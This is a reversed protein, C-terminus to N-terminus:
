VCQVPLELPVYNRHCLHIYASTLACFAPRSVDAHEDCACDLGECKMMFQVPDVVRFCPSLPSNTSSFLSTCSLSDATGNQCIEAKGSVCESDVQWSHTFQLVSHTHSGDPLLLENAAENDNTGLLGASVGHLWGDLIVSCVELHTDCSVRLGRENSVEILNVDKRIAVERKTYPIQAVHCNVEVEGNPHIAIKTNQMQVVLSRHKFRDSKLAISFTHQFVDGALIFDCSAPLKFLHGDFSVLYVDAVLFAQYNVPSDMIKRKLRYLESTPSLSNLALLPKLVFEELLVETVGAEKVKLWPGVPLPVRFIVEGESKSFQYMLALQRRIGVLMAALRAEMWQFTQQSVMDMAFIAVHLTTLSPARLHPDHLIAPLLETLERTWLQVGQQWATDLRVGTVDHYAGALTALPKRLEQQVQQSILNLVHLTHPLSHTLTHRLPGTTWAKWLAGARQLLLTEARQTLSLPGESLELLFMSDGAQRRFTLLLHQLRQVRDLLKSRIRYGLQQLRAETAWLCESCGKAQFLLSQNAAGVSILTLTENEIGQGGRQAELTFWRHGELCFAARIDDSTEMNYGAAVRLCHKGLAGQLWLMESRDLKAHVQIAVNRGSSLSSCALEVSWNGVQWETILSYNSRQSSSINRLSLTFTNHQPHGSVSVRTHTHFLEKGSNVRHSGSWILAPQPPCLGIQVHHELRDRLNTHIQTLLTYSPCPSPSVNQAGLEMLLTHMGKVGGQYKMSQTIRKDKWKLETNQSYAKGEQAVAVCGEMEVLPLLSQIQGPSLFICAQGRSSDDHWHESVTVSVNVPKGHEWSFRAQKNHNQGRDPGHSLAHIHFHTLTSVFLQKQELSDTQRSVLTWSGQVRVQDHRGFLIWDVSLDALKRQTDNEVRLDLGWGQAKGTLEPYSQLHPVDDSSDTQTLDQNEWQARHTLTHSGRKGDYRTRVTLNRPLLHLQPISHNSVLVQKFGSNTSSIEAEFALGSMGVLLEATGKVSSHAHSLQSKSHFEFPLYPHLDSINHSINVLLGTSSTNHHGQLDFSFASSQSNYFSARIGVKLSDEQDQGSCAGLLHGTDIGETCNVQSQGTTQTTHPSSQELTATLGSAGAHLELQACVSSDSWNVYVGASRNLPLGASRLWPISHSLQAHLSRCGCHTVNSSINVCLSEEMAVLCLLASLDEGSKREHQRTVELGYVADDVVVTLEGETLGKSQTLVGVLSASNPLAALDQISNFIDASLSLQSEQDHPLTGSLHASFTEEKKKVTCQLFLSESSTNAALHIQGDSTVGPFLTQHFGAHVCVTNIGKAMKNNLNFHLTVNKENAKLNVSSGINGLPSVIVAANAHYNKDDIAVKSESHYEFESNNRHSRLVEIDLSVSTPFDTQFLQSLNAKMTIGHQSTTLDHLQVQGFAALIEDKGVWLRGQIECATQHNQVTVCIKSDQPIRETSFSQVISSCVYPQQPQFGLTLIHIGKKNGHVLVKSELTYVKQHLDSTFTEQLILSQPLFKFPQRFNLKWRKQYVKREKRIEEIAGEMQLEAFPNKLDSLTMTMMLLRKKLKKDLTSLVASINLDQKGYGASIELTKVQKGNIIYIQGHLAPTWATSISYSAKVGRKGLMNWGGVKIYSVTPTFLHLQGQREKGRDKYFGELTVSRINVLKRTTIESSFQTIGRQPQTLKQVIYVYLWPTDMNFSGEWKQLSTKTSVDKWHVGAVLPMQNNYNIKLHTSSESRQKKFYSHLLQTRYSLGRDLLRLSLEVSYSTLGPGSQNRLSQNFLIRHKNSSQNWQKGFSVDLSSQVNFPSREHKLEIKHNINIFHSCHLKHAATIRYMQVPDSESHLNQTMHCEQMNQSDESLSADKNFVNKLLAQIIFRRSRAHTTNVSLSFPHGDAVVKADLHFHARTESPLNVTELLGKIFYHHINDILLEIRGSHQNNLEEIQAQILINKLPHTIKLILRKPSLNVDLSMDRPITSQPTGLFLLLTAELPTWSNRQPVFTYAAELLYQNLGKDLKQLRLTFLVPGLPPFSKGMLTLPYTVDSCLQWGVMKSWTKPTCTSKEKLNRTAILEEKSDGSVHFMRSNFTLVDMVDEPTNLVVKLSQGHHLFVAGDLSTFTKLQSVWELGVRGFAGDVGARVSIAVLANPKVYGALSFHSWNKYNAIGKLRLSFLASMNISLRMPLGSLSPLVLEEALVIPRQSIKIEQGKLLKVVVGATSLSLKRQYAHLDDCSMFALDNGFMKVNMWCRLSSDRKRQETFKTKISSLGTSQCGDSGGQKEDRNRGKQENRMSDTQSSPRSHDASALPHEEFIKKLFPELNEMRLSIELLNFARGLIHVTLNAMAYRPLFSEPSFVVAGEINAAAVGTDVTYDMHSSYKWTEAEFDKSLIDDPLSEMLDKKLPDETKQINFLHSWVFSGVQSSKENSLTTKVITFIEQNPCTMLQQYAAIRVEVNEQQSQFAQALATRDHHCPIRRFARVAALRLELVVSQNQVCRSLTPILDSVAAGANEVAKLVHLLETIQLHNDVECGADLSQKLVHVFQQVESIDNCPGQEQQCLGQVLSSVVLLAKPCILPIQLLASLHSIMSSTPHSAFSITNLLPLVHEQDVEKNIILNTTVLICDETGCASLADVLPQWDDRCKFSAEQWLDRLQHSSLTRLQLVLNLLLESQQQQDALHACLRRVTNSVEQVSPGGHRGSNQGEAEFVVSSLYGTNQGLDMPIVELTRLLTLSSVTKTETAELLGPLPVLSVTETCNVKKLMTGDYLQICALGASLTMGEKLPVSHRWFQDIRDSLCQQLNRSKVMSPGRQEYSSMCTGYVDTERVTERARGSHSTQFMSLISRKINLTWVQEAEQSCLKTVKGGELWFRLPNKELSERISKLRLVSNDRKSSSHKIQVNRLKLIIEPCGPRVDIDVVCDLALQSGGSSPGKWASAITTSYRYTHRQGKQVVPCTSKCLQDQHLKHCDAGFFILLM